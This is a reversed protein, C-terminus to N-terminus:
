RRIKNLDIEFAVPINFEGQPTQTYNTSGAKNTYGWILPKGGLSQYRVVGPKDRVPVLEYTAITKLKEQVYTARAADIAGQTTLGSTNPTATREVYATAVDKLYNLARESTIGAPLRITADGSKYMSSGQGMRWSSSKELVQGHVMTIAKDLLEQDYGDSGEEDGVKLPKGDTDIRPKDKALYKYAAIIISRQEPTDVVADGDLDRYKELNILDNALKGTAVTTNQGSLIMQGLTVNTSIGNVNGEDDVSSVPENMTLASIMLLKARGANPEIASIQDYLAKNRTIATRTALEADTEKAKRTLVIAAANTSFDRLIVNRQADTTFTAKLNDLEQRTYPIIPKNTNALVTAMDGKNDPNLKVGPNNSAFTGVPDEKEQKSIESDHKDLSAVFEPSIEGAEALRQYENRLRTRQEPTADKYEELTAKIEKAEKVLEPNIALVRAELDPDAPYVSYIQKMYDAEEKKVLTATAQKAREQANNFNQTDRGFSVEADQIMNQLRAEYQIRQEETLPSLLEYQKRQEETITSNIAALEAEKTAREEESLTPDTLQTKLNELNSIAIRARLDTINAKTREYAAKRNALYEETNTGDYLMGVKSEEEIQLISRNVSNVAYKNKFNTRIEEKKALPIRPDDVISNLIPQAVELPQEQLNEITTAAEQEFIADRTQKYITALEGQSKVGEIAVLEQFKSQYNSPLEAVYRKQENMDYALLKNHADLDNMNGSSVQERVLAVEKERDVLYQARKIAFNSNNQLEALREGEKAANTVGELGTSNDPNNYVNTRTPQLQQGISPEKFIQLDIAM